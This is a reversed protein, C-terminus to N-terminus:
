ESEKYLFEGGSVKRARELRILIRHNRSRLAAKGAILLRIIIRRLCLALPNATIALLTQYTLISILHYDL